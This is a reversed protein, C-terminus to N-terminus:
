ISHTTHVIYIQAELKTQEWEYQSIFYDMM